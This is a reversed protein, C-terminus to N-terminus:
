IRMCARVYMHHSETEVAGQLQRAHMFVRVCLCARVCLCVRVYLYVRICM